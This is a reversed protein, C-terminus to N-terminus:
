CLCNKRIIHNNIKGDYNYQCLCGYDDNCTKGNEVKTFKIKKKLEEIYCENDNCCLQNNSYSLCNDFNEKNYNNIIFFILTFILAHILATKYKDNLNLKIFIDPTLIFFLIIVLIM